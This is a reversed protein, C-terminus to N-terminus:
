LWRDRWMLIAEEKGWSSSESKGSTQTLSQRAQHATRRFGRYSTGKIMKGKFHANQHSDSQSFVDTFHSISQWPRETPTRHPGRQTWARSEAIGGKGWEAWWRGKWLMAKPLFCSISNCCMFLPVQQIFQSAKKLLFYVNLTDGSNLRVNASPTVPVRDQEVWIELWVM